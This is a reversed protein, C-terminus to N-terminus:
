AAISWFFFLFSASLSLASPRHCEKQFLMKVANWNRAMLVWNIIYVPEDSGEGESRLSRHRRTADSAAGLHHYASGWNQAGGM